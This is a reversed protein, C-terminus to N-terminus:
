EIIKFEDVMTNTEKVIESNAARAYLVGAAGLVVVAVLGLAYPLLSFDHPLTTAMTSTESLVTPVEEKPEPEPLKATYTLSHEVVGEPNLIALTEGTNSLSFSSKILTGAFEEHESLFQVPDSAIVAVAGPALIDSGQVVNLKHKVGGELFKFKSIDIAVIGTNTVEVWERGQDAGPVDYMVETIEISAHAFLPLAFLSVLIVM